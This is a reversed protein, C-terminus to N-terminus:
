IGIFKILDKDFTFVRYGAQKSYEYLLCDVFDFSSDGFTELANNLAKSNADLIIKQM